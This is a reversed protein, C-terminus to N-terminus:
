GLGSEYFESEEYGLATTLTNLVLQDARLFRQYYRYNRWRMEELLSPTTALRLTEAVCQEPSEFSLYNRGVLFNGPVAHRLRESVVGKSAAVYEALKWGNSEAIGRTTVCIDAERVARLYHNKAIDSRALVCDPYLQKAEQTPKFGGTFAEGFETRLLRICSGRMENLEARDRAAYHEDGYTRTLFMVKPVTRVHRPVDEFHEVYPGGLGFYHATDYGAFHALTARSTRWPNRLLRAAFFPHRAIVLYNFGLPRFKDAFPGKDHVEPDYSRKFYLDVDSLYNEANEEHEFESADHVDYALKLRGEIEAHVLFTSPFRNRMEPRFQVTLDVLGAKELLVFGAIIQYVHVREAPVTLVCRLKASTSM